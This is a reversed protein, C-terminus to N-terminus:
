LRYNNCNVLLISFIPLPPIGVRPEWYSNWGYVRGRKSATGYEFAGFTFYVFIKTEQTNRNSENGIANANKIKEPFWFLWFFPWYIETRGTAHKVHCRMSVVFLVANNKYRFRLPTVDRAISRTGFLRGTVAGTPNDSHVLFPWDRQNLYISRECM